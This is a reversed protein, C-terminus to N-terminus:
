EDPLLHEPMNRRVRGTAVAHGVAGTALAYYPPVSVASM